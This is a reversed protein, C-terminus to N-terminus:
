SSRRLGSSRAVSRAVRGSSVRSELYAAIDAPDLDKKLMRGYILLDAGAEVARLALEGPTGLASLAGMEMDDTLVAGRFGLHGRLIEEIWIKSLTAPLSDVAPYVLHCAMVSEVGEAVLARFPSVDTAFLEERPLDVLGAGLHTDKASAGHGPFHKACAAVGGRRMGNFFAAAYASVTAADTGFARDGVAGSEGPRVVDCVPALNLDIGLARLARSQEEARAATEEVTGRVM